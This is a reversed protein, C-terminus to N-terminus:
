NAGVFDQFGDNQNNPAVTQGFGDQFDSFGDLLNNTAPQSQPVSDFSIFDAVVAPKTPKVPASVIKPAETVKEKKKSENEKKSKKKDKKKKKQEAESDSSESGNDEAEKEAGGHSYLKSVYKDFKSRDKWFLSAPDYSM